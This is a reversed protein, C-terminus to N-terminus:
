SGWLYHLHRWAETCDQPFTHVAFWLSLSLSLSLSLPSSFFPCPSLFLFGRSPVQPFTIRVPSLKITKNIGECVIVSIVRLLRSERPVKIGLAGRKGVRQKWGRKGRALFHFRRYHGNSFCEYHPVESSSPSFESVLRFEALTTPPAIRRMAFLSYIWPHVTSRIARPGSTKLILSVVM